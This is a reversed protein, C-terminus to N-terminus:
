RVTGPAVIEQPGAAVGIDVLEEVALLEVQATVAVEHARHRRIVQGLQVDVVDEVDELDGTEGGFAAVEDFRARGPRAVEDLEKGLDVHEAGDRHTRVAVERHGDPSRVGAIGEGGTAREAHLDPLRRRLQQGPPDRGRGGIVASPVAPTLWSPAPSSSAM